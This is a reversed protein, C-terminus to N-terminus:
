VLLWAEAWSKNTKNNLSLLYNFIAKENKFSPVLSSDFQELIFVVREDLLGLDIKGKILNRYKEEANKVWHVCGLKIGAERLAHLLFLLEVLSDAPELISFLFDMKIIIKRIMENVLTYNFRLPELKCLIVLSHAVSKINEPQYESSCLNLLSNDEAILYEYLEDILLVLIEKNCINRYFNCSPNNSMLRKYLYLIRGLTGINLDVSEAKSYMILRYVEDDLDELFEDTNLQIFENQVLWEIGWGIGLLGDSFNYNDVKMINDVVEDLLGRAKQTYMDQESITSKLYFILCLGMKGHYLGYNNIDVSKEWASIYKEELAEM